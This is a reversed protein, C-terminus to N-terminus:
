LINTKLHTSRYRKLFSIVCEFKLRHTNDCVIYVFLNFTARFIHFLCVGLILKKYIYNYIYIM